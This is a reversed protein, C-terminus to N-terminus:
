KKVIYTSYVKNKTNLTVVYIGSLWDSADNIQVSAQRLNSINRQYVKRGLEDHVLLIGSLSEIEALHSLDITLSESFPNPYISITNDTIIESKIEKLLLNHAEQNAYLRPSWSNGLAINTIPKIFDIQIDGAIAAPDFLYFLIENGIIEVNYGPAQIHKVLETDLVFSFQIADFKLDSTQLIIRSSNDNFVKKNFSIVEYSRPTSHFLIPASVNLDGRKIVKYDFSNMGSLLVIDQVNPNPLEKLSAGQALAFAWPEVSSTVATPMGLFIKQLELLDQASVFNNNDIDAAILFSTDPSSMIGLLYSQLLNLDAVDIGNGWVSDYSFRIQYLTTDPKLNESLITGNANSYLVRMSDNTSNIDLKVNIM